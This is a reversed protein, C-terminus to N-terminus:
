LEILLVGVIILAIGAAMVRTFPEKFLFKGAVATLAVGAAAWIGYAIGIGLGRALAMSLLTFAALYGGVVLVYWAKSGTTAARLSLTAMVEVLIALVLFVWYM